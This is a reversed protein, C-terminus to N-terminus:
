RAGSTPSSAIDSQCRQRELDAIYHMGRMWCEHNAEHCARLTARWRTQQEEAWRHRESAFQMDVRQQLLLAKETTWTALLQDVEASNM